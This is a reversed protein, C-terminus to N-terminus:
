GPRPRPSRNSYAAQNVIHLIPYFPSIIAATTLVGALLAFTVLLLFTIGGDGDQESKRRGAVSFSFARGPV